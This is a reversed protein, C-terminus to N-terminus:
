AYTIGKSIRGYNKCTKNKNNNKKERQMETQSTETLGDEFERIRKDTMDLKDNFKNFVTKMEM